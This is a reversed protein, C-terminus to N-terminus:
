GNSSVMSAKSRSWLWPLIRDQPTLLKSTGDPPLRRFRRRQGDRRCDLGRSDALARWRTRRSERTHPAGLQRPRNHARRDHRSEPGACSLRGRAALSRRPARPVGRWTASRNKTRRGESKVIGFAELGSCAASFAPAPSRRRVARRALRSSSRLIFAFHVRRGKFLLVALRNKRLDLLLELSEISEAAVLQVVCALM